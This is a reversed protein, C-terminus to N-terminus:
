FDLLLLYTYLIKTMECLSDHAISMMVHRFQM